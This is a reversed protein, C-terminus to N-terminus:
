RRPRNREPVAGRSAKEAKPAYRRRAVDTCASRRKKSKLKRCLALARSLLQARTLKMPPAPVLNGAGTFSASAPASFLPPSTLPERCAGGQCPTLVPPQPLGGGVRADYVDVSEDTDSPALQERTAFFV